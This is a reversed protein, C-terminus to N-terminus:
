SEGRAGKVLEGTPAPHAARGFVAKEIAKCLQETNVPKLIWANAGAQRGEQVRSSSGDSTLVFIPTTAHNPLKRVEQIMRIGDMVPMHIDTVIVDVANDRVRWLGESGNEAELVRLGKAELPTRLQARLSHSDDVVLITWTM